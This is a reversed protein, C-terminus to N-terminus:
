NTQQIPSITSSSTEGENTIELEAEDFDEESMREISRLLDQRIIQASIPDLKLDTADNSSLM